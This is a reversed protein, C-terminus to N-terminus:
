EEGIKKLVRKAEAGYEALSMHTSSHGEALKKILDVCLSYNRGLDFANEVFKDLANHDHIMPKMIKDNDISM